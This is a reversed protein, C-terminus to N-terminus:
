SDEVDSTIADANLRIEATGLVLDDRGLDRRLSSLVQSLSNRGHEADREPWLLATAKDRSLGRSGSTALLALLALPRRGKPIAGDARDTGELSL